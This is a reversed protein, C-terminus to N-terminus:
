LLKEQSALNEYYEYIIKAAYPNFRTDTYNLWRTRGKSTYFEGSSKIPYNAIEPYFSEAEDSPTFFSTTSFNTAHTTLPIDSPLGVSLSGILLFFLGLREKKIKPGSQAKRETM